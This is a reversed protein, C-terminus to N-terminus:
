FYNRDSDLLALIVSAYVRHGYDNPHNVGNGTLDFFDKRALLKQWVKYVDALAIEEPGAATFERLAAAFAADPGPRTLQWQPNGSMSAVILYETGPSAARCRDIIASLTRIFEAPALHSFDNMGYAIILLDPTDPLWRDSIELAHRCGTGGVARNQLEVATKFREELTRRVLEPYAPAFPPIGSFATANNGESISDGIVTIRLPEERRALRARCRPLRNRQPQLEPQFDIGTSRYDIEVQHCAFFGGSGFRLNRGDLGDAIANAGPAPFLRAEAGAPHLEADSLAPIRSGQVLEIRNTGPRHLFDRGPLFEMEIGPCAVRLIETAPFLLSVQDKGAFMGSEQRVVGTERDWLISM